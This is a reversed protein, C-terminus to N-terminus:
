NTSVVGTVRPEPRELPIARPLREQLLRETAAVMPEAHFLKQMPPDALLNCVALLIMGQHHAMWCRVLEYGEPGPASCPMFDASEYFGFKGLWGMDKMARLNKIAASVDVALALFSAYPSVVLGPRTKPRLALARMGFAYYQYHGADDRQSYASESIGWPIRRQKSVKTQCAVVARLTQDLMTQPYTRMWLAPMLYEFMTGSWSFMVRNGECRTHTRGLHFWSEQPVDGKAIAIFAATRAESALLDYCSNELRGQTVNYGISLVRKKPQFLLRFDMEHVWADAQAALTQLKLSLSEAERILAPIRTRLSQAAATIETGAGGDECLAKLKGALTRLCDPLSNLTLGNAGGSLGLEPCELLPRDEPGLWPALGVTLKNVGELRAMTEEVWWRLDKLGADATHLLAERLRSLIQELAPLDRVWAPASERPQGLWAELKDKAFVVQPGCAAAGALEIIFRLHDQIGQWLASDFIPREAMRLCGQKLTWLCCALNGSDVTSIFLPEIPQLSHIDYWNLFHGHSRPLRLACTLSRETEDVFEILTLYGLEFAALRANLLLGLNTPSLRLAQSSPEEQFDDPILWNTEANSFTRFFRWTRLATRRLFVEDAEAMKSRAPRLPRSLWQSFFGSCAWLALIPSAILLARAHFAALFAAVILVVLPTWELYLDAPAKKRTEVETEAATEWELLRRRTITLRILTRVIADLTVLTQHALFALLMFVDLQGATFSDAAESLYGSLNEARFAQSLSLVLRLYSPILLLALVAVTWHTPGGPLFFWGALLLVLTASEVLSRRLNDLIKWRSMVTIPNPVSRGSYDPVRPLLWRMIQWDGRVWRHKRRSYASFQSPYDDILEVDSVMGARSYAGEILDHSLIANMPFRKSLVRQFVGVEYIGKGTFSGEGLLDQYVNSVARTYIDFGTQGSYINAFRSRNASRVSIGVRPQLIGYGEVVTNTAPDIVARNLPHAMAGILRHASERPLQTDADLTIVYRIKPLLSLDGVKVPFSDYGGRLLNNFDLLKGRKREWGMWTGESPNYTRHRHFHFFSGGSRGSYQENLGKVLESCLDVLADRGDFAKASDPSDTLLAFHLNADRNGLYRIELDRVMQRVQQKNILLTPVAVVTACEEPIGRSFDLKPLPCPPLLFSILQNMVGTASETAPILLFLVAWFLPVDVRLGSLVFGILAFTVLEIGTLYFIEPGQRIARQIQKPLPPRYGIQKELFPRGKDVLYYGVHSRRQAVHSMSGLKNRAARALGIAKSAIELEDVESFAGLEQVAQRYLNRSEFDMLSYAESPDQRLVQETASIEEIREGWEADDIERLSRILRSLPVGPVLSKLNPGAGPKRREELLRKAVSAIEELLVLQMLPRLAWLEGIEFAEREQAAKFYAAFARAELVFATARLFASSARYARPLRQAKQDEGGIQPLARSFKSLPSTEKLASRILRANELLWRAPDPLPQSDTSNKRHERLAEEISQNAERWKIKVAPCRKRKPSLKWQSAQRSAESSLKELNDLAPAPHSPAADQFPPSPQTGPPIETSGRNGSTLDDAM